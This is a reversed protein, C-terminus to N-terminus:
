KRLCEYYLEMLDRLRKETDDGIEGDGIFRCEFELNPALQTKMQGRVRVVSDRLLLYHGATNM